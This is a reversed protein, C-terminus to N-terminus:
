INIRVFVCVGRYGTKISSVHVNGGDGDGGVSGGHGRRDKVSLADADICFM